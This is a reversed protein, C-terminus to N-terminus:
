GHGGEKPTAGARKAYEGVDRMRRSVTKRSVGVVEATEELTMGDIVRCYAPPAALGDLAASM